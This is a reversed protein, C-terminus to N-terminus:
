CLFKIYNSIFNMVGTKAMAPIAQQAARRAKEALRGEGV